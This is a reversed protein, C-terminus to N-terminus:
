ASIITICRVIIKFLAVSLKSIHYPIKLLKISNMKSNLWSLGRGAWNRLFTRITLIDTHCNAALPVLFFRSLMNM